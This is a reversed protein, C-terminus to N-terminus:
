DNKDWFLAEDEDSLNALYICKKTVDDTDIYGITRYDADYNEDYDPHLVIRDGYGKAILAVLADKLERVTYANIGNRKM